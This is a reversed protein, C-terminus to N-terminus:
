PAHDPVQEEPPIRPMGLILRVVLPSLLTTMAVMILLLAYGAASFIGADYGVKVVVLGVAGRVNLLSGTALGERWAMGSLRAGLSAGAVKALSAAVIVVALPILSAPMPLLGLQVDAGSVVFFVPLLLIRTIDGLRRVSDERLVPYRAVLAGVALPGLVANLGAAHTLWAALLALSLVGVFSFSSAERMARLRPGVMYDGVLLALGFVALLALRAWFVPASAVSGVGAIVAILIWGVIDDVTAAGMAVRGIPSAVLRLDQLVRALVPLASVTMTIGVMAWGAWSGVGPFFWGPLALPLLLGVGMPVVFGGAAVMSVSRVDSRAWRMELGVRYVFLVLGLWSLSRLVEASGASFLAAHGEPWAWGLLSPGLAIGVLMEGAVGPLQWRTFAWRAIGAAGVIAALSLFLMGVPDEPM